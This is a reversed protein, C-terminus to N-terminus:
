KNSNDITKKLLKSSEFDKATVLKVITKSVIEEEEGDLFLKLDVLFNLSM